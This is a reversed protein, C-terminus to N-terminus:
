DKPYGFAGGTCLLGEFDSWRIAVLMGVRERCKFDEGVHQANEKEQEEVLIWTRSQTRM